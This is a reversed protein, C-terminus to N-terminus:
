SGPVAITNLATKGNAAPRNFVVVVSGDGTSALAPEAHSVGAALLRPTADVVTGDPRVAAARLDHGGGSAETWAVLWVEGDFVATPGATIETSSTAVLLGFNPDLAGAARTVRFARIETAETAADDARAAFVVLFSADGGAVEPSTDWRAQGLLLSTAGSAEVWGARLVPIPVFPPASQAVLNATWVALTDGGLDAAAAAGAEYYGPPAHLAELEFPTLPAGSPLPVITGEPRRFESGGFACSGSEHHFVSFAGAPGFAVEVPGGLYTRCTGIPLHQKVLVAAGNTGGAGLFGRVYINDFFFGPNQPVESATFWSVAYDTGDSAVDPAGDSGECQLNASLVIPAPDLPAGAADLRRALVDSHAQQFTMSWAALVGDGNSGASVAVANDLCALTAEGAPPAGCTAAQCSRDCAATGPPECAEGADVTGNGCLSPVDECTVQQCSLDCFVGDPPDCEEGPEVDGNGCVAIPVCGSADCGTVISNQESVCSTGAPPAKCRAASGPLRHREGGNRDIRCCVVAGRKGCRSFRAYGYADRRCDRNLNGDAIENMIRNRACSLYDRRSVGDCPCFTEIRDYTLALDTADVGGPDCDANAASPVWTLTAALASVWLISRLRRM